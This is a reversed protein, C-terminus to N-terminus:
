WTKDRLGVFKKYTNIFNVSYLLVNRTDALVEFILLTTRTSGEKKKMRKLQSRQLGEIMDLIQEQMRILDAVSDFQKEKQIYMLFNLYSSMDESLMFMRNIQSVSFRGAGDNLHAIIFNTVNCINRTMESLHDLLQVLVNGADLESDSIEALESLSNNKLTKVTYELKGVDEKVKQMGKEHREFLNKVSLFYVKSSEILISQLEGDIRGKLLESLSGSNQEGIINKRKREKQVYQNNSRYLRYFLLVVIVVLVPTKGYFVIPTLFFTGTFAIFAVLIWAGMVYIVGSVRYVANEKRWAYDALSTGMAVMFVVFTTSLPFRLYTGLSILLGAVTLNVVARITDFYFIENDNESSLPVVYRGKVFRIFSDPLYRVLMSKINRVSNVIHKAVPSAEFREYGQSQRGLIIETETVGRAKKSVFLTVIMIVAALSFIFLRVTDKFTEKQVLENNLFELSFNDPSVAGEEFFRKISEFGALPLGIFNVLDNAAFSLALAFTGFLVVLRSIDFDFSLSLFFFIFTTGAFVAILIEPLYSDIFLGWNNEDIIIGSVSKKFIMFMLATIAFGGFVSLLIKYKKRYDFTFILRTIFQVAMGLMFSFVVTLIIGSIIFFIKGINIVENVPVAETFGGTQKLIAIAFAGGVLELIVALTTSVPIRLSNFTDILLINVIMAALFVSILEDLYFRGPYIIGNRVVEMMGSSLYTGLLLGAGSVIFITRRRAAGSGMASNLFNVADNSVGTILNLIGFVVLLLITFWIFTM